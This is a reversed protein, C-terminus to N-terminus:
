PVAATWALTDGSEFGDTFIGEFPPLAKSGQYIEATNAGGVGPLFNPDWVWVSDQAWAFFKVDDPQAASAANLLISHSVTTCEGAALSVEVGNNGDQAINREYAAPGYNDLVQAIWVDMIKGTGGPEICVTAKVDFIDGAGFVTMDITVDTPVAQRALFKSEYSGIPWGDTLGDQVNSPVWTAGYLSDRLNGFPTSYSDSVHIYIAGLTDPHNTIM